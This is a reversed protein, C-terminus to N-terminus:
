TTEINFNASISIREVKSKFPYVSHVLNAPFIFFDGSKPFYHKVSIKLAEHSASFMFFISGPGGNLVTGIYNQNEKKLKEPIDLYLVCTLNCNNHIHPPNYEGNKMFNVWSSITEFKSIKKNYWNQFTQKYEPLYKLIIDNFKKIDIKYEHNLHGALNKRNDKKQDKLCIKKLENIDEKNLETHYLLPGSYYFKSTM